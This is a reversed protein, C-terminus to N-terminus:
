DLEKRRVSDLHAPVVPFDGVASDDDGADASHTGVANATFREPARRPAALAADRRDGGEFGGRKGAPHGALDFIKVGLM